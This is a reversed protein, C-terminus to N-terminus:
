YYRRSFRHMVAWQKANGKAENAHDTQRSVAKCAVRENRVVGAGHARAVGLQLQVAFIIMVLFVAHGCFCGLAASVEGVTEVFRNIQHATEGILMDFRLLSTGTGCFIADGINGKFHFPTEILQPIETKGDLWSEGQGRPIVIFAQAIAPCGVAEKKDGGILRVKQREM